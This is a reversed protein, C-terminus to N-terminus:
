HAENDSRNLAKRRRRALRTSYIIAILLGAVAGVGAGLLTLGIAVYIPVDGPDSRGHRHYSFSLLWGLSLGAIGGTIAGTVLGAISVAIYALIDM